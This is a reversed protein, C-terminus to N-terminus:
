WLVLLLFGLPLSGCEAIMVKVAWDSIIETASRVRSLWSSLSESSTQHFWSLGLRWTEWYLSTISRCQVVPVLMPKVSSVTPPFVIVATELDLRTSAM